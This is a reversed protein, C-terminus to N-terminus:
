IRACYVRSREAGRFKWRPKEVTTERNVVNRHPSLGLNKSCNSRITDYLECHSPIKSPPLFSSFLSLKM